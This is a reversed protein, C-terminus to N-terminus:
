CGGRTCVSRLVWRWVGRVTDTQRCALHLHREHARRQASPESATSPGIRASLAGSARTARASAPRSSKLTSKAATDSPERHSPQLAYAHRQMDPSPQIPSLNLDDQNGWAQHAVSCNRSLGATSSAGSHARGHRASRNAPWWAVEQQAEDHANVAFQFGQPLSVKLQVAKSISDQTKIVEGAWPRRTPEVALCWLLHNNLCDSYSHPLQLAHAAHAIGKMSIGSEVRVSTDVLTGCPFPLRLCALEYLVCGLSWVDARADYPM